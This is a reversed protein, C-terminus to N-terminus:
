REALVKSETIFYNDSIDFDGCDGYETVQSGIIIDIIQKLKRVFNRYVDRSM